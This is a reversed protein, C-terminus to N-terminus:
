AFHQRKPKIDIAYDVFIKEKTSEYQNHIFMFLPTYQYFETMFNHLSTKKKDIQEKCIGKRGYIPEGTQKDYRRIKQGYRASIEKASKGSTHRMEDAERIESWSLYDRHIKNSVYQTFIKRYLYIARAYYVMHDEPPYYRKVFNDIFNRIDILLFEYQMRIVNLTEDRPPEVLPRKAFYPSAKANEEMPDQLYERDFRIIDHSDEYNEIKDEAEKLAVQQKQVFDDDYREWNAKRVLQIAAILDKKEISIEEPLNSSDNWGRAMFKENKFRSFQKDSLAKYVSSELRELGRRKFERIIRNCIDSTFERQQNLEYIKELNLAIKQIISKFTDYAASAVEAQHYLKENEDKIIQETEVTQTSAVM